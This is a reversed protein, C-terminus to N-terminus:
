GRGFVSFHTNLLAYINNNAAFNLVLSVVVVTGGM